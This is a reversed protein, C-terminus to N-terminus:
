EGYEFTAIGEMKEPDKPNVIVLLSYDGRLTYVQPGEKETLTIRIDTAGSPIPLKHLLDEVRYTKEPDVPYEFGFLMRDDVM